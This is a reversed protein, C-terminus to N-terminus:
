LFRLTWIERSSSAIILYISMDKKIIYIFIECLVSSQSRGEHIHITQTCWVLLAHGADRLIIQISTTKKLRVNLPKAHAYAIPLYQM